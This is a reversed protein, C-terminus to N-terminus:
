PECWLRATAKIVYSSLDIVGTGGGTFQLDLILMTASATTNDALVGTGTASKTLTPAARMEPEIARADRMINNVYWRLSGGYLIRWYRKCLALESAYDPVQFAPAVSGEYLGVDFLEFINNITGM